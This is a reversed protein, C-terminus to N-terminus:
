PVFFIVLLWIACHFDTSKVFSTMPCSCSVYGGVIFYDFNHVDEPLLESKAHADLFCVRPEKDDSPPRAAERLAALVPPLTAANDHKSEPTSQLTTNSTNSDGIPDSTSPPDVLTTLSRTTIAACEKFSQPLNAQHETSINTVILKKPGVIRAINAYEISCWGDKPFDTEVHEIIVYPLSVAKPKESM